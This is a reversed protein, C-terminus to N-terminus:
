GAWFFFIICRFIYVFPWQSVSLCSLCFSSLLFVFVRFLLDIFLSSIFHFSVFHFFSALGGTWSLFFFPFSLSEDWRTEDSRMADCRMESWILDFWLFSFSSRRVCALLCCALLHLDPIVPCAYGWVHVHVTQKSFFLSRFKYYFFYFFVLILSIRDAQKAVM